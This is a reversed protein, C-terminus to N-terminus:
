SFLLILLLGGFLFYLAFQMSFAKKFEQPMFKETSPFFRRALAIIFATISLLLLMVGIAVFIGM